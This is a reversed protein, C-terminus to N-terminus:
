PDMGALRSNLKLVSNGLFAFDHNHRLLASHVGCPIISILLGIFFLTADMTFQSQALWKFPEDSTMRVYYAIRLAIALHSTNWGSGHSEFNSALYVPVFETEFESGTRSEMDEWSGTCNICRRQFYVARHPGPCSAGIKVEGSSGNEPQLPHPWLWLRNAVSHLFSCSLVSMSSKLKYEAM